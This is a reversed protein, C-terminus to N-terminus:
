SSPPWAEPEGKQPKGVCWIGAIPWPAPFPREVVRRLGADAHVFGPGTAIGIHLQGLGAAFVVLDGPEATGGTRRVLGRGALEAALLDLGASRRGYGRPVCAAPLALALAAVGVCDLGEGSRGQPRYPTGVLARARAAVADARGTVRGTV